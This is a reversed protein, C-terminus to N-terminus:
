IIVEILNQVLDFVKQYQIWRLSNENVHNLFVISSPVTSRKLVGVNVVSILEWVQNPLWDM